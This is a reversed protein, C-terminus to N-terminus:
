ALQKIVSAPVQHQAYYAEREPLDRDAPERFLAIANADM